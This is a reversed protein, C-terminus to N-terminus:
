PLRIVMGPRLGKSDNKVLDKNLQYIQKWRAGSGYLARAISYFTDGEQVRYTMDAASSQTASEVDGSGALATGEPDPITIVDGIRLARPTKIHPNAKLIVSFLRGDGYYQVAVASLTDGPAVRHKRPWLSATSRDQERASADTSHRIRTDGALRRPTALAGRDGAPIHEGLTALGAGSSSAASAMPQKTGTGIRDLNDQTAEVLQPAPGSRLATSSQRADTRAVRDQIPRTRHPEAPSGRSGETQSPPKMGKGVSTVAPTGSFRPGGGPWTDKRLGENSVPIKPSESVTPGSSILFEGEKADNGYLFYVSAVVVILLGTVIGIRTETSM